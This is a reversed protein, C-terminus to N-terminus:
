AKVGGDACRSVFVHSSGFWRRRPEAQLVGNRCEADRGCATSVKSPGSDAREGDVRTSSPGLWRRRGSILPIDLGRWRRSSDIVHDKFHTAQPRRRNAAKRISFLRVLTAWVRRGTAAHLGSYAEAAVIEEQFSEDTGDVRGSLVGLEDAAIGLGTPIITSGGENPGRIPVPLPGTNAHAGLIQSPLPIM